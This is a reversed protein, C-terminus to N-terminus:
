CKTFKKFKLQTCHLKLFAYLKLFAHIFFFDWSGGQPISHCFSSVPISLKSKINIKDAGILPVGRRLCHQKICSCATQCILRRERQEAGSCKFLACVFSLHLTPHLCAPLCSREMRGDNQSRVRHAFGCHTVLFPISRPFFALLSSFLNDRALRFNALGTHIQTLILTLLNEPTDSFLRLWRVPYRQHFPTDTNTFLHSQNGANNNNAAKSTSCHNM